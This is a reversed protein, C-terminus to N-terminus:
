SRESGQRPSTAAAKTSFTHVVRMGVSKRKDIGKQSRRFDQSAAHPYGSPPEVSRHSKQGVKGGLRTRVIPLFQGGEQPRAFRRGGGAGIEGCVQVIEIATESCSEKERLRGPRHPPDITMRGPGLFRDVEPPIQPLIRRFFAGDPMGGSIADGAAPPKLRLPLHSPADKEFLDGELPHAFISL